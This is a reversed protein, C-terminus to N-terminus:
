ELPEITIKIRKVEGRKLHIGFFRSFIQHCIYAKGYNLFQVIKGSSLYKLVCIRDDRGDKNGWRELIFEKSKAM